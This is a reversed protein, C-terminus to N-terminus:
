VKWLLYYLSVTDTGMGNAHGNQGISAYVTWGTQELTEVLCLLIEKARMTDDGSVYWPTGRIKLEYVGDM